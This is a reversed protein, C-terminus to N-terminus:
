VLDVAMTFGEPREMQLETQGAGIAHASSVVSQTLARFFEALAKGTDTGRAAQWAWEPKTAVQVITAPDAQGIGFAVINPRRRFQEDRLQALAGRWQVDLDTPNGDSLFFVAPRYVGYGDSRLQNVDGDIRSRLDEFAAVYSTGGRSAVQPLHEITRMDVMNVHTIVTDSFSLISIRVKAAAMTDKHLEDLLSTLGLNLEGLVGSMSGSADLVLYIPLVNGQPDDSM